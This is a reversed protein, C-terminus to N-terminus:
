MEADPFVDDLRFIEQAACEASPRLAVAAANLTVGATGNMCWYQIDLLAKCSGNKFGDCAAMNGELFVWGVGNTLAGRMQRLKFETASQVNTGHRLVFNVKIVAHAHPSKETRKVLSQWTVATDTLPAFLAELKRDLAELIRLSDGSLTVNLRANEPHSPAATVDESSGGKDWVRTDVGFKLDLWTGLKLYARKGHVSLSPAQFRHLSPATTQELSLKEIVDQTLELVVADLKARKRPFNGGPISAAQAHKM